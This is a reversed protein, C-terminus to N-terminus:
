EWFRWNASVLVLPDGTPILSHKSMWRSVFFGFLGAFMALTGVEIWSIMVFESHNSPMSMWYIDLWQGILVGWCVIMLWASHKKQGQGLLGFFPLVFKFFWVVYTLTLWGGDARKLYYFVEEPLNAYWILMFQSFAVYCMFVTFAFLLGSIDKVHSPTAVHKLQNNKLKIFVIIMLALTSQFIGAFTYVTFMTSFWKPEMSMLFDYSFFAFTPAFLMLAVIGFRNAKLSLEANKGDDQALSYNILKRAVWIWILFFLINRGAMMPFTLWKHKTPSIIGSHDGLWSYIEPGVMMIGVLSILFLVAAVPMFSAFAEALRRPVIAWHSNVARNIAIFVYGGLALGTFMYMDQIYNQWARVPEVMVGGIFALAGIVMMGMFLNSLSKSLSLPGPNEIHTVTAHM